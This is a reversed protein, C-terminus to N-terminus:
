ALAIFSSFSWTFGCMLHRSTVPSSRMALTDITPMPMREWAPIAACINRVSASSPMLMWIIEVESILIVTTISSFYVSSATRTRWLANSSSWAHFRKEGKEETEHRNRSHRLRARHGDHHRDARAAAGVQQRALEGLLQRFRPALRHHHLVLGAGGAQDARLAHDARVGVAVRQEERVVAHDGRRRHEVLPGVEIRALLKQREGQHGGHRVDRHDVRR